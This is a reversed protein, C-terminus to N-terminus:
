INRDQQELVASYNSGSGYNYKQPPPKTTCGHKSFSKDCWLLIKLAPGWGFASSLFCAFRHLAFCVCLLATSESSWRTPALLRACLLFIWMAGTNSVRVACCAAESKTPLITPLHMRRREVHLSSDLFDVHSHNFNTGSKPRGFKTSRMCKPPVWAYESNLSATKQM